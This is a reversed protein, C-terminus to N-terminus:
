ATTTRESRLWVVRGDLQRVALGADPDIDVVRGDIIKGDCNLRTTRGWALCKDRWVGRLRPDDGPNLGADLARILRRLLEPRDIGRPGCMALSTASDRLEEPLQSRDLNVNIGIGIVFWGDRQEILIGGLKRPGVFLDNPWKITVRQDVEALVQDLVEATVACSGYSLREGLGALSQPDSPPDFGTPRVVLSFMLSTGAPSQWRRGLRGRGATQRDAVVVAGAAHPGLEAIREFALDQTSGATPYVFVPRAPTGGDGALERTLWEAWAEVPRESM